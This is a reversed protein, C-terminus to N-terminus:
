GNSRSQLIGDIEGNIEEVSKTGDVSVLKGKKRYYDVLPETQAKYVEIRRKVTELTDDARTILEGQCHACRDGSFTDRHFPAGCQKCTRRGTLRHILADEGVAIDIVQDVPCIGELAEAQPVTRPFGDLIFGQVCDAKQLREAVIRVVLEDPVLEGRDMFAKAELGVPTGAKIAERFIDGTSIQPIGWKESVLRAQTGKGAGPAGLFIIKMPRDRM